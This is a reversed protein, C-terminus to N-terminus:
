ATLPKRNFKKYKLGKRIRTIKKAECKEQGIQKATQQASLDVNKKRRPPNVITGRCAFFEGAQKWRQNGERRGPRLNTVVETLRKMRDLFM